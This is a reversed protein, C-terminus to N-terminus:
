EGKCVLGFGLFLTAVIVLVGFLIFMGNARTSSIIFNYCDGGVWANVNQEIFYESNNYQTLLHIARGFPILSLSYSITSVVKLKTKM